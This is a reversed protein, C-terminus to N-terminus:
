LKAAAAALREIEDFAGDNILKPPAIWSGGVGIVNDLALYDRAREAGIGGTPMFGAEPIPGAISKLMALGGSAEAPFFKQLRYGRDLLTLMESPTSAGPVFPMERKEAADLLEPTAGPSVAFRAGADSAERFQQAQRISGAGILMEPMQAAIAEIAALASETRLTIEIVGLGGALLCQALPLAARPDDIVVVPVIRCNQLLESADM